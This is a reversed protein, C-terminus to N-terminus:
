WMQGCVTTLLTTFILVIVNICYPALDATELSINPDCSLQINMKILSNSSQDAQYLHCICVPQIDM